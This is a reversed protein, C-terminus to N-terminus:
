DTIKVIKFCDLLDYGIVLLYVGSTFETFDIKSEESQIFGTKIIGANDAIIKYPLGVKDSPLIVNVYHKTPNPYVNVFSYDNCLNKRIELLVLLIATDSIANCNKTSVVCRYITTQTLTNINSITLTSDNVGSYM